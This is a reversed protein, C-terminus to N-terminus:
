TFIDLIYIDKYKLDLNKIQCWAIIIEEVLLRYWDNSHSFLGPALESKATM